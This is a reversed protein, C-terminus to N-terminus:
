PTAVVLAAILDRCFGFTAPVIFIYSYQRETPTQSNWLICVMTNGYLPLPMQVSAGIAHGAQLKVIRM